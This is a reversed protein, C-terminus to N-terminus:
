AAACDVCVGAARDYHDDCVVAGCRECSASAEATECVQCLESAHM